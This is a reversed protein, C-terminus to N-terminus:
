EGETRLVEKLTLRMNMSDLAINVNQVLCRRVGRYDKLGDNVVLEVVDGEWLPLFCTELEWSVHQRENKAIKAAEESVRALTHPTINAVQRFDVVSYGRAQISNAGTPVKAYGYTTRQVTKYKKSGAPHVNGDKDTTKRKYVGDQVQANYDHQVAVTDPVSLWDSSRAVTGDLVVGHQDALSIRFKPVKSSPRVYRTVKIFGEPTVDIRNSSMNCLAFFAELRSKGADILQANPSKSDNAVSDDVTVNSAGEAGGFSGLASRMSHAGSKSLVDKMAALASTGKRIPYPQLFRDEALMQLTSQLILDYHWVSGVKRADDSTVVYTGITKRYKMEPVSHVLRIFSGRKWGDGYVSLKGSTRMDTYYAAEVNSEAWNVGRLPGLSAGFNTQSVMVAELNHTLNADGWRAM